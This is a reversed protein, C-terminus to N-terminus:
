FLRLLEERRSRSVPLKMGNSLLLYGGGARVYKTIHRLNVLHSHHVRFFAHGALLDEVDKLTRSILKKRGDRLHVETYNSDSSCAIIDEADVFEIDEKSPLPVKTVRISSDIAPRQAPVEHRDMVPPEQRRRFREVAERLEQVQVPKLLYDLAGAKVARIGFEAHGTTLVVAFTREEGVMELVEFGNLRPMDIDLFVLDPLQERRLYTLAELPDTFEAVVEVEPCFQALKWALTTVAHQEDDIIVTRIM